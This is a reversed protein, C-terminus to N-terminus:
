PRQQWGLVPAEVTVECCTGHGVGLHLSRNRMRGGVPDVVVVTVEFDNASRQKWVPHRYWSYAGGVGGNRHGDEVVEGFGMMLTQAMSSPMQPLSACWRHAKKRSQQVNKSPNM